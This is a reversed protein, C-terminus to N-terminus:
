CRSTSNTNETIVALFAKVSMNGGPRLWQSGEKTGAIHRKQRPELACARGKEPLVRGKRLTSNVLEKNQARGQGGAWSPCVESCSTELTRLSIFLSFALPLSPSKPPSPDPGPSSPCSRTVPRPPWPHSSLPSTLIEPVLIGLLQSSLGQAPWGPPFIPCM